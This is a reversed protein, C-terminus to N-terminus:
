QQQQDAMVSMQLCIKSAHLKSLFKKYEDKNHEMMITAFYSLSAIMISNVINTIIERYIISLSNEVIIATVFAIFGFINWCLSLLLIKSLIQKIRLYIISSKHNQHYNNIQIVKYIYLSMLLIDSAILQGYSAGYFIRWRFDRSNISCFGHITPDSEVKFFM